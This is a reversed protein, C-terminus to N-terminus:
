TEPVTPPSAAGPKLRALAWAYWDDLDASPRPPPKGAFRAVRGALDGDWGRRPLRELEVRFAAELCQREPTDGRRALEAAATNIFHGREIM